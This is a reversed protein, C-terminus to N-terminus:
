AKPQTNTMQRNYSIIISSKPGSIGWLITARFVLHYGEEAIFLRPALPGGKKIGIQCEMRANKGGFLAQKM